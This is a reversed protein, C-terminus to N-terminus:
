MGSSKGDQTFSYPNVYVQVPATYGPQPHGYKLGYALTVNNGSISVATGVEPYLAGPGADILLASGATVGSTSGLTISTANAAVTGTLTTASSTDVPHAAIFGTRVYVTILTQDDVLGDQTADRVWLIIKGSPTTPGIVSGSPAFVVDVATKATNASAASLSLDIIAGQPLLLSPEGPLIRPQRIVRYSVNGSTPVTAASNLGLTAATGSGSGVATILYLPGGGNIELYDNPQVLWLSSNNSQGGYLDIATSLLTGYSSPANTPAVVTVQTVPASSTSNGLVSNMTVGSSYSVRYNYDPPQQIYQLDTCYLGNPSITNPYTAGPFIRIGTPVGDRKAWQKALLLWGQLRDAAQVTRSRQNTRPIFAVSIGALILVLALVVLMEILTFGRRQQSRPQM